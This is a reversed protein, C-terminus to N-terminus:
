RDVFGGGVDVPIDEAYTVFYKQEYLTTHLKALTTTLFAFNTDHIKSDGVYAKSIRSGFTEREKM